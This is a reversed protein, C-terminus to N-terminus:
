VRDFTIQSISTLGHTRLTGRRYTEVSMNQDDRHARSERSVLQFRAREYQQGWYQAQSMNEDFICARERVRHSVADYAIDPARGEFMQTGFTTNSTYKITHWIEIHYVDSPYPWLLWQPNDSSDPEIQAMWAPKGSTNRHLDGGAKEYINQINTLQIEDSGTFASNNGYAVIMIEDLGSISLPYVDRLVVYSAGSSVTTGQYADALTLTDPSSDTDVSAVEYSVLDTGVRIFDGAAVNTFNNAGSGDSDSSTVTTSGNTVNVGGTTLKAHTKFADRSLGWRYRAAELIDHVAENASDILLNQLQNASTFETIDPEGIVRLAENITAGLTKAM